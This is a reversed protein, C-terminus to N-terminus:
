NTFDKRKRDLARKVATVVNRKSVDNKRIIDTKEKSSLNGCSKDIKIRADNLMGYITKNM